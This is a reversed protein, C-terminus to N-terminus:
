GIDDCPALLTFNPHQVYMSMTIAIANLLTHPTQIKKKKKSGGKGMKYKNTPGGEGM